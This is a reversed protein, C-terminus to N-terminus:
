VILLMQDRWLNFAALSLTQHPYLINDTKNIATYEFGLSTGSVHWPITKFSYIFSHIIYKSNYSKEFVPLKILKKLFDGGRYESKEM